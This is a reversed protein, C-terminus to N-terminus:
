HLHKDVGVVTESSNDKAIERKRRNAFLKRRHHRAFDARLVEAVLVRKDGRRTERKRGCERLWLDCASRRCYNQNATGASLIAVFRQVANRDKTLESATECFSSVEDDAEILASDTLAAATRFVGTEGFVGLVNDVDNVPQALSLVYVAIPDCKQRM